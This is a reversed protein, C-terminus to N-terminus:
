EGLRETRRLPPAIRDGVYARVAEQVARHDDGLRM